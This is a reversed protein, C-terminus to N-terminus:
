RFPYLRFTEGAPYENRGQPLELFGDVEALNALDGSGRGHIPQAILRGEENVATKVQLFYTLDPRFEVTEQLQAYISPTASKSWCAELFPIVYRRSCMFSSVPNGPLAFILKGDNTSGFWFPKGPRQHVKYFEKQIGIRAFVEPLYDFKGKSVGGTLVLIDSEALIQVLSEYIREKEDPLHHDKSPFGHQALLSQITYTNSRRIQYPLPQQDVEVLEDGTTIVQIRPLSYVKPQSLGVTAAVGMEAPGIKRGAPLITTGKQRDSGQLHANKGKQVEEILITAKGEKIELDEYRIVTDTGEPLMAGTMVELCHTPDSLELPPAGAAQVGAIPFTRQGQSYAAHAIAIGDMSVRTFPPFDRDARVPEALTRGLAQHFNITEIGWHRLHSFIIRQAEEVNVM